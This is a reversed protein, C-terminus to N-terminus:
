GLVYGDPGSKQGQPTMGAQQGQPTMGAQGRASNAMAPNYVEGWVQTGSQKLTGQLQQTGSQKLTGQLQQVRARKASGAV